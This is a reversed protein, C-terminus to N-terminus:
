NALWLGWPVSPLSGDDEHKEPATMSAGFILAAVNKEMGVGM